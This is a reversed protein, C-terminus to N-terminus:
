SCWKVMSCLAPFCLALASVNDLIYLLSSDVFSHKITPVISSGHSASVSPSDWHFLLLESFSFSDSHCIEKFFLECLSSSFHNSSSSACCYELVGNIVM